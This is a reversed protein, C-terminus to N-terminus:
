AADLTIKPRDDIDEYADFIQNKIQEKIADELGLPIGKHLAPMIRLGKEETYTAQFKVRQQNSTQGDGIDVWVEGSYVHSGKQTLTKRITKPQEAEVGPQSTIRSM